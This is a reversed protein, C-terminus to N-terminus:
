GGGGGKTVDPDRVKTDCIHCQYPKVGTHILKHRKLKHLDYFSKDCLECQYPRFEAHIRLHRRIKYWTDFAKRCHRRCTHSKVM